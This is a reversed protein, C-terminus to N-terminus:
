RWRHVQRRCLCTPGSSFTKCSFFHGAKESSSNRRVTRGGTLEMMYDQIEDCERMNEIEMVELFEPPIDYEDLVRKATVCFPCYSKSVVFVKKEKILSDIRQRIPSM